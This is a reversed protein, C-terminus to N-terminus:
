SRGIRLAALLESTVTGTVALGADEQFSQLANATRPGYVGDVPGVDYGRERLASQVRRLVPGTPQRQAEAPAADSQAVAPANRAAIALPSPESASAAAHRGPARGDGTAAAVATDALTAAEALETEIARTQPDVPAQPAVSRAADAAPAPKAVEAAMPPEGAPPPEPAPDDARVVVREGQAVFGQGVTIITAEDPLGAIWIGDTQARVLEVPHFVVESRPGVTKIGLTGDTGLSLIAPSVFHADVTGVPLSVEASIGAPVAGDPNAVEVEVSFTRTGREAAPAIFRVQGERTEGTVFAVRASQGLALQSVSRQPVDVEVVLPDTDIIRAVEEGPQVVEGPDIALESLIGAVPARVLTDSLAERAVALRAEAAALAARVEEERARTAFGREALQTISRYDREARRVDAEAEALRADREAPAIRVLVDGAAIRAGKRAALAEVTGASESRVPTSLDPTVDGELVLTRTVPRATSTTAQVAVPDPEAARPPPPPPPSDALMGSGMWGALALVLGAAIWGSRSSRAPAHAPTAAAPPAAAGDTGTAHHADNDAM